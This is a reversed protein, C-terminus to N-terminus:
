ARLDLELTLDPEARQPGYAALLYRGPALAALTVQGAEDSSRSECLAWAEGDAPASLDLRFAPPAGGAARARLDVGQAAAVWTLELEGAGFPAAVAVADGGGEGARALAPAPAPALPLSSELLRLGRAVADALRELALAVRARAPLPAAAPAPELALLDRVDDRCAPCAAVHARLATTPAPGLEPAFALLAERPPCWARAPVSAGAAAALAERCATVRARCAPCAALHPDDGGDDALALLADDPLHDAM